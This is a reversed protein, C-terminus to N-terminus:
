AVCVLHSSVTFSYQTSRVVLAVNKAGGWFFCGGIANLVDLDNTHMIHVPSQLTWEREM